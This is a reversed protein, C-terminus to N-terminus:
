LTSSLISIPIEQHLQAYPLIFVISRKKDLFTTNGMRIEMHYKPTFSLSPTSSDCFNFSLQTNNEM